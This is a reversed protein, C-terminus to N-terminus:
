VRYRRLRQYAAFGIPTTNVPAPQSPANGKVEIRGVRVHIPLPAPTQAPAPTVKPLQFADARETQAPRIAHDAQLADPTDEALQTFVPSSLATQPEHSTGAPVQLDNTIRAVERVAQQVMPEGRKDAEYVHSTVSPGSAAAKPMLAPESAPQVQPIPVIATGSESQPARLSSTTRQEPSSLREPKIELAPMPARASSSSAMDIPEALAAQPWATATEESTVEEIGEGSVFGTEFVPPLM